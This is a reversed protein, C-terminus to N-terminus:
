PTSGVGDSAPSGSQFPDRDVATVRPAISANHAITGGHADLLVAWTNLSKLNM